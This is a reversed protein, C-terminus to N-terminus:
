PLPCTPQGFQVTGTPTVNSGPNASELAAQSAQTAALTGSNAQNLAIDRPSPSFENNSMNLCLAGVGRGQARFGATSPNAESIDNNRVTVNHVVSGTEGSRGSAVRFAEFFDNGDHVIINDEILTNVTKAADGRVDVFIAERNDGATLSINGIQNGRIRLRNTFGAGAADRFDIFMGQRAVGQISNDDISLDIRGAFTDPTVNIARFGSSNTIVNNSISGTTTPGPASLRGPAVNILGTNNGVTGSDNITNGNINFNFTSNSFPAIVVPQTLGGTSVSQFNADLLNFNVTGTHGEDTNFRVGSNVLSTFSSPTGNDSEITVTMNSAGRAVVLVANAGDTSDRVSIGEMILGALNANNNVLTMGHTNPTNYASIDLGTFRANGTLNNLELGGSFLNPPPDDSVPSVIDLYGLTLDHSNSVLIASGTTNRLLGGSGATGTGTVHLGGASGTNDLVIANAPGASGTGASISDFRLDNDGITTDEVRLATATTTELASGAGTATITGGGTAEFAINTGTNLTMAGAFTIASGANDTLLIGNAGSIDGSLTLSGASRNLVRVPRVAGTATISGNYSIAATGADVEFATTSAGSLSGGGMTLTGGINSLLVNRTGSSSSVSSFGAGAVSGDSLNLAQGGAAITTDAVALTGFNSGAVGNGSTTGVSVGVLHNGSALEIGNGGANVIQPPTGSTAPLVSQGPVTVNAITALAQSAGQGLLRQDALLAIGGTYDGSGSHLFIRDGQADAAAAVAVLSNFPTGLRGDGGGAAANDAFWIRDSGIPITLTGTVSGFGNSVTYVLQGNASTLGAAPSFSFNGDANVSANGNSASDLGLTIANGSALAALNFGSDVSTDIGVNGVLADPYSADSASPRFGVAVSVTACDQAASNEICYGFSDIGTFGSAPTYTFSGDAAVVVTGGGGSVSDSSVIDAQPFGLVDNGLVGNGANVSLSTDFEGHYVMSGPSSNGPIGGEPNNNAQPAENITLIFDNQSDDPVVGNSATVTLPYDGGTGSDPTGELSNSGANFSVGAPLSGSVTFDPTPIGDAVFTFSCVSGVTCSNTAASTIEPPSGITLTFSQDVNGAANSATLTLNFVGDDTPTGSLVGTTADLSLGSPVSSLSFEPAPFGDASFTFDCPQGLNCILNDASTIAPAENVTLTFTQTDDSGVGNSAVLSLNYEAGTGADPTGSLEGSTTDFSLGAPLGGLTFEPAPFGDATATFSCASGVECSLNDPSTISPALTVTLTFTQDADVGIGNSATLTLVQEGEDAPTGSLEGSVADLSLGAPVSSLSFTPAPFGDAAFTFDCSQGLECSHNDVSTIAPAENITLTFDQSDDSGVGNSAVLSLTYEDGTGADPTGTLEGSSTDFSLGAPLGDLQFSPAPFGDATATFSCASGVECTLSDPSTIASAEGITLEFDQSADSGIGNSAVVNVTNVGSGTSDPTGSLEGSTADLSLGDPLGTASWLPAPFGDAAFQFNCEENVECGFADASTIEPAENVTIELSQTADPAVGNSATVEILALGGSGPQPEGEIREDGVDFVLGDPLAGDISISPEPFGEAELQLECAVGVECTLTDDSTIQPSDSITFLLQADAQGQLNSVRINLRFEGLQGSPPEFELSGDAAISLSGDPALSVTAGAPNDAVTGGLDGGGFSELQPAPVGTADELVGPATLTFVSGAAVDFDVDPLSPASQVEVRVLAQDGGFANAIRYEFEFDGDFGSEPQFVFSGDANVQLSGDAGVSVASGAPNSSADGALAGGGFSALEASPDGLEDNGLLGDAVTVNLPGPAAVTYTDDEAQPLGFFALGVDMRFCLQELSSRKAYLSRIGLESDPDGVHGQALRDALSWSGLQGDLVCVAGAVGGGGLMVLALLTVRGRKRILLLGAALLLVAMLLLAFFGLTPIVEPHLAALFIGSSSGPATTLLSVTNGAGDTAVLAMRVPSRGDRFELPVPFRADVLHFGDDGIGIGVPWNGADVVEAPAFVDASGDLCERSQTGIVEASDPGTVEVLATLIYNVGSFDGDPTSVTCGSSSNNDLDLLLDFESVQASANASLLVALVLGFLAHHRFLMNEGWCTHRTDM